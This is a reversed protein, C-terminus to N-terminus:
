KVLPFMAELPMAQYCKRLRLVLEIFKQLLHM